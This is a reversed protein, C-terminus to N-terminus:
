TLRHKTSPLHITMMTMDLKGRECVRTEGLCLNSASRVGVEGSGSSEPFNWQEPARRWEFPIPEVELFSSSVRQFGVTNGEGEYVMWGNLPDLTVLHM